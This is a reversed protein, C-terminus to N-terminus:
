SRTSDSFEVSRSRPQGTTTRSFGEMRERRHVPGRTRQIPPHDILENGLGQHNREGHYHAVYDTLARRLHWEGLPVIRDLCEEKLTLRGVVSTDFQLYAIQRGDPSWALADRLFFEEENVCDSTDSIVNPDISDTLRTVEGSNLDEVHINQQRV